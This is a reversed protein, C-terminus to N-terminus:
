GSEMVNGLAVLEESRLDAIGLAVLTPQKENRPLCLIDVLFGMFRRRPQGFGARRGVGAMSRAAWDASESGAM